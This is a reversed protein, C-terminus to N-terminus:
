KSINQLKDFFSINLLLLGFLIFMVSFIYSDKIKKQLHYEYFHAGSFFFALIGFSLNIPFFLPWKSLQLAAVLAFIYLYRSARTKFFKYFLWISLASFILIDTM